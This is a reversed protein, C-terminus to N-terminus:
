FHQNVNRPESLSVLNHTLSFEKRALFKMRLQNQGGASFHFVHRFRPIGISPSGSSTVRDGFLSLKRPFAVKTPLPLYKVHGESYRHLLRCSFYLLWNPYRAEHRWLICKDGWAAERGAGSDIFINGHVRSASIM